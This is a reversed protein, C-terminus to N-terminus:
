SYPVLEGDDLSWYGGDSDQYGGGDVPKLYMGCIFKFGNPVDDDEEDPDNGISETDIYDGWIDEEDEHNNMWGMHEFFKTDGMDSISKQKKIDEFVGGFPKYPKIVANMGSTDFPMEDEVNNNNVEGDDTSDSSLLLSKNDTSSATFLDNVIDDLYNFRDFVSMNKKKASLKDIQMKNYEETNSTDNIFGKILNDQDKNYRCIFQYIAIVDAEDYNKGNAIANYKQLFSNKKDAKRKSSKKNCNQSGKIDAYQECWKIIAEKDSYRGYGNNLSKIEGDQLIFDNHRYVYILNLQELYKNYEIVTKKPIESLVSLYDITLGGIFSQITNMYCNDEFLFTKNSLSGILIVFYKLVKFRDKNRERKKSQEKEYGMITRVEDLNIKTFYEINYKEDKAGATFHLKSLNMVYDADGISSSKSILKLDTCTLNDIGAKIKQYMSKDYLLKGTLLYALMHYSVYYEKDTDNMLSRLAIYVALGELSLHSDNLIKKQLFIEM